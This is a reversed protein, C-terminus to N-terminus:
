ENKKIKTHSPTKFTGDELESITEEAQDLENSISKVTNQIEYFSNKLKLIERQNKEITNREKTFKENM